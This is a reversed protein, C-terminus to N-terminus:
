RLAARVAELERPELAAAEAVATEAATREGLDRRARAVLLWADAREGRTLPADAEAAARALDAARGPAGGSDLLARALRRAVLARVDADVGGLRLGTARELVRRTEALRGARRHARGARVLAVAARAPDAAEVRRALEEYRGAAQRRGARPAEAAALARLFDTAGFAFLISDFAAEPRVAGSRIRPAERAFSDAERPDRSAAAAREMVEAGREREGRAAHVKAQYALLQSTTPFADPRAPGDGRRAVVRRSVDLAAGLDRVPAVTMVHVEVFTHGAWDAPTRGGAATARIADSAAREFGLEYCLRALLGLLADPPPRERPALAGLARRRAAFPDGRDRMLGLLAAFAVAARDDPFAAALREAQAAAGRLGGGRGQFLARVSGELAALEDDPALAPPPRAPTAAPSPEARPSVDPGAAPGAPSGTATATATAEAEPPPGAAGDSAAPGGDGSSGIALGVAVALGFAGAVAAVFGLTSRSCAASEAPEAALFAELDDALEAASPHRDAPDRAMARRCIRDLRKPIAPVHRRPPVLDTRTVKEALELLSGAVFPRRGTLARYLIAGLAYVDSRADLFSAGRFGEPALYSPTGVVEGTGTLSRRLSRDAALGFDTVRPRGTRADLIVNAPKLDRHVVGRAHAHGVAAAVDAVLHAAREPELPAEADLVARLDRGSCLEMVYFDRGQDRGADHVPVIGPHELKSAVQAELRFRAVAEADGDLLVKLAFPRVLGDRRAVFVVGAAGRGLEEILRYGGIAGGSAPGSRSAAWSEGPRGAVFPGTGSTSPPPLREGVLGRGCTPCALRELGALAAFPLRACGRPCGFAVQGPDLGALRAGSGELLARAQRQAGSEAM